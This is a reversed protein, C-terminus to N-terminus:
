VVRAGPVPGTACQVSRGLGLGTLRAALGVAASESRVLFAVTPGSGSVVHGLAGSDMGAEIVDRLGPMLSLAAPELDNALAKGLAAVDGVALANLLPAGVEAPEGDPPPGSAQGRLEDLRAFVEPTGLGRESLALVWHYTGRCLVPTLRDGRDIGLATGGVLCFPVDAGLQAGLMALDDQDLDAGWLRSCALLAAAADASGGAMGGTVPIAKRIMLECGYGSGPLASAVMRAARVALNDDGRPVNEAQDGAVRVRFVGPPADTARLEDFVSVAQFVTALSHYGDARRPGSRLSLNIKGPVRVTVSEPEPESIPDAM